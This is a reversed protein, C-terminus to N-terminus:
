EYDDLNLLDEEETLMADAKKSIAVISDDFRYNGCFVCFPSEKANVNDCAECLKYYFPHKKVDQIWRKQKNNM